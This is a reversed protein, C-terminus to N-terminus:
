DVHSLVEENDLFQRGLAGLEEGDTLSEDV